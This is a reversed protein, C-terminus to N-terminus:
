ARNKITVQYGFVGNIDLQILAKALAIAKFLRFRFDPTQLPFIKESHDSKKVGM